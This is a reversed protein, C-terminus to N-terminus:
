DSKPITLKIDLARHEREGLTIAVPDSKIAPAGIDSSPMKASVKYKGPPIDKLVFHGNQDTAAQRSRLRNFDTEPDVRVRLQVGALAQNQDSDTVTGEIQTGENSVVIELNDKAAGDEVQVGKQFVDENGLHASKVFWGQELGYTALAYSGDSVGQIEFSGDKEVEAFGSESEAEEATPQLVVVTRGSARPNGGVVRGHITAGGTLSLVVSDINSEGVDIKKRTSHVKGREYTGTSIYYTGPSVSKISFDGKTDTSSGLGGSWDEVGVPTLEVHARTEPGGDAGMVRGTVEVLKIRRMSFDAQMEEGAQLMVPQAQDLQLVGPYYMPAFQSGLTQLVMREQAMGGDQSGMFRDFGVETAKVYYEGPKLGHIRYEGRDDTQTVSATTMEVKRARPGFDEREEESPKHLVAVNVGIMPEGADDVVRGTVVGGRVLRFLVDTVEQAPLLSLMAGETRGTGKAQYNQELYGTHTAFFQYRGALVKKIEFRGEDDTTDGYVQPRERADAQVLGVRASRLPAGDAAGIVRGSVTCNGSPKNSVSPNNTPNSPAQALAATVVTIFAFAVIAPRPMGFRGRAIIALNYHVEVM